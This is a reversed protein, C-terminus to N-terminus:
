TETVFCPWRTGLTWAGERHHETAVMLMVACWDLRVLHRQQRWLQAACPASIRQETGHQLLQRRTHRSDGDVKVSSHSLLLKCLVKRVRETDRVGCCRERRKHGQDQVIRPCLVVLHVLQFHRHPLHVLVLTDSITEMRRCHQLSKRAVKHCGLVAGLAARDRRAHGKVLKQTLLAAQLEAHWHGCSVRQHVLKQATRWGTRATHLATFRRKQQRAARRAPCSFSHRGHVSSSSLSIGGTNGGASCPQDATTFPSKTGGHDVTARRHTGSSGATKQCDCLRVCIDTM